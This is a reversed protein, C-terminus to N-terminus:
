DGDGPQYRKFPDIRCEETPFPLIPIGFLWKWLPKQETGLASLVSSSFYHSSILSCFNHAFFSPISMIVPFFSPISILTLFWFSSFVSRSVSSRFRSSLSVTEIFGSSFPLFYCGNIFGSGNQVVTFGFHFWMSHFSTFGLRFQFWWFYFNRNMYKSM